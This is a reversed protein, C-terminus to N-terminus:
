RYGLADLAAGIPVFYTQGVGEGDGDKKILVGVLEGSPTVFPGGSDGHRCAFDVRTLGPTGDYTIDLGNVRGSNWWTVQGFHWLPTGEPLADRRVTLPPPLREAANRPRLLAVDLRTDSAIVVMPVDRVSVIQRGNDSLRRTAAIVLVSDTVVHAATLVTGRDDIVEGTGARYEAGREASYATVHIRVTSAFMRRVFAMRVACADADLGTCPDPPTVEPAREICPRLPVQAAACAGLFFAFFSLIAAAIGLQRCKAAFRIAM